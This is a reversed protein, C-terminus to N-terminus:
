TIGASTSFNRTTCDNVMTSVKSNDRITSDDADTPQTDLLKVSTESDGDKVVSMPAKFSYNGSPDREVSVYRCYHLTVINLDANDIRLGYM